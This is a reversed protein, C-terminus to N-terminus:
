ATALRYRYAGYWLAVASVSALVVAPAHGAAFSVAFLALWVLSLPIIERNRLTTHYHMEGNIYRMEIRYPTLPSEKPISTGVPVGIAGHIEEATFMFPQNDRLFRYVPWFRGDRREMEEKDIM